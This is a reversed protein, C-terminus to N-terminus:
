LGMRGGWVQGLVVAALFLPIYQFDLGSLMRGMYVVPITAHVCIWWAPSLKRTHARLMGMPVNLVFALSLLGAVLATKAWIDM